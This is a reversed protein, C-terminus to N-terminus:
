DRHFMFVTRKTSEIFYSRGTNGPMKMNGKVIRKADNRDMYSAIKEDPKGEESVWLDYVAKYEFVTETIKMM